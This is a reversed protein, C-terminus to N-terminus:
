AKFWMMWRYIMLIYFMNLQTLYGHCLYPYQLPTQLSNECGNQHDLSLLHYITLHVMMLTFKYLLEKLCESTCFGKKHFYKTVPWPFPTAAPVPPLTLVTIRAFTSYLPHCFWQETMLYNKLLLLAVVLCFVLSQCKVPLFKSM